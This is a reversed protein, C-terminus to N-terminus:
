DDAPEAIGSPKYKMGFDRFLRGFDDLGLVGDDVDFNHVLTLLLPDSWPGYGIVSFGRVRVTTPLYKESLCVESADGPVDPM